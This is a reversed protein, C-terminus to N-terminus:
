LLTSLLESKQLHKHLQGTQDQNYIDNYSHPCTHHKSQCNDTLVSHCMPFIYVVSTHFMKGPTYTSKLLFFFLLIIIMIYNDTHMYVFYDLKKKSTFELLCFQESANEYQLSIHSCCFHRTAESAILPYLVQGVQSLTSLGHEGHLSKILKYIRATQDTKAPCELSLWSDLTQEYLFRRKKDSQVSTCFSRFTRQACM